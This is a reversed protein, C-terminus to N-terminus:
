AATIRHEPRRRKNWVQVILRYGAAKRGSSGTQQTSGLSAQAIIQGRWRDISGHAAIKKALEDDDIVDGHRGIFMGLAGLIMGDWAEGGQRGFAQEAVDLVRDLTTAGYIETISMLTQAAAISNASLSGVKLGHKDLVAQIDVMLLQGGTLGIRYEDIKATAKRERNILLFLQAEQAETLGHHLEVDLETIAALRAAALRHQGDVVYIKQDARKNAVITGAATPIFRRALAAVRKPDLTRQTEPDVNLEDIIIREHTIPHDPLNYDYRSM